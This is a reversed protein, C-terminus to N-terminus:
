SSQHQEHVREFEEVFEEFLRAMPPSGAAAYHRALNRCSRCLVERVTTPSLYIEDPAIGQRQLYEFLDHPTLFRGRDFVDIYFPVDAEYCGVLFHGPLGVPEVRIGCREAIILYLTALSIPLGRRTELLRHLFSNDPNEYDEANGRFGYEHFLVRNLVRCQGHPSLNEILLERCRTAIRDLQECIDGVDLEPDITRCLLLAGTELEYGLSRIFDRFENAPDANNLELLYWRAHIASFRNPGAIVRNLFARAAERNTEFYRLLARRVSPSPDDLLALIADQRNADTLNEAV